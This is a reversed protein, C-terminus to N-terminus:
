QLVVLGIGGMLFVLMPIAHFVLTVPLPFFGNRPAIRSAQGIISPGARSQSSSPGHHFIPTSWLSFNGPNSTSTSTTATTTFSVGLGLLSSSGLGFHFTTGSGSLSSFSPGTSAGFTSPSSSGSTFSITYTFPPPAFSSVVASISSSMTPNTDVPGTLIYPFSSSLSEGVIPHSNSSGKDSTIPTSPKSTELNM